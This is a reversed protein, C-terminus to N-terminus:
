RVRFALEHELGHAIGGAFCLTDTHRDKKGRDTTRYWCWQEGERRVGTTTVVKIAPPAVQTVARASPRPKAPILLQHLAPEGLDAKTAPFDVGARYLGGPMALYVGAVPLERDCTVEAAIVKGITITRAVKCTVDPQKAADASALEYTWTASPEFLKAYHAPLKPAAGAPAALALLLLACRM